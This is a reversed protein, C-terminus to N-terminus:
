PPSSGDRVAADEKLRRASTPMTAREKTRSRDGTTRLEFPLDTCPLRSPEGEVVISRYGFRAASAAQKFTRSDSEVSLPTLSVITQM